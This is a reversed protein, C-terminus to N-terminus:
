PKGGTQKRRRELLDTASVIDMALELASAPELAVLVQERSDTLNRRGEFSLRVLLQEGGGDALSYGAFADARVADALLLETSVAAMEGAPLASPDPGTM